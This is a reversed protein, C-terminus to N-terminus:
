PIINRQQLELFLKRLARGRHSIAHKADSSMEAFTQRTELAEFIPDYGFGQTGRREITILGEVSGETVVEHTGNYYVTVTAFRATRKDPPVEQLELLLKDINDDYTADEGAYRASFVGPAGNLADVELGTDDCIVPLGLFKYLELAKKLANGQLSNRDEEIEPVNDFERLDKITLGPHGFIEKIEKSKDPNASGVVFVNIM